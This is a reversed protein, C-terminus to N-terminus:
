SQFQIYCKLSFNTQFTGGMTLKTEKATTFCSVCAPFLFPPNIKQAAVDQISLNTFPLCHSPLREGM